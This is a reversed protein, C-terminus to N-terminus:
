TAGRPLRNAHLVFMSILLTLMGGHILVMSDLAGLKGHGVWGESLGILNNYTTYVLIALIVNMSRGARPNVHSLPIALAALLLASIPYGLRWVWEAMNEPSPNSLLEATARMRATPLGQGAEGPQLRIGYREFEMIRYEATGPAGEYRRGRNLVLFRDGNKETKIVGDLGVIVGIRGQQTAQIFVNGVHQDERTMTEVFIVRKGETTEMFIGPTLSSAEDRSSLFREYDAKKQASWPILALSLLAILAVVPVAFRLIPNLWAWSSLGAGAWIVMESDRWLRTLTLFVAMFLSLSLLVPLFNLLGFGIFPFVAEPNIDGIAAKGLIRVMLSVLVIASLAALASAGTATM